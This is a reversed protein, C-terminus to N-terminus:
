NFHNFLANRKEKEGEDLLPNRGEEGGEAREIQVPHLSLPRRKGERKRCFLPTM